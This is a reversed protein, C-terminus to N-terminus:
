AAVAVARRRRLAAGAMGFGGIMLAWSAPEPVAGGTGGIANVVIQTAWPTDAVQFATDSTILHLNIGFVEGAGVNKHGLFATGDNYNAVQTAGAFFGISGIYGVDVTGAGPLTVGALLPDGAALVTMGPNSTSFIANGGNDFVQLDAPLSYNLGSWPTLILRGGGNVYTDLATTDTFSNGYHIVADFGALSAATYSSIETVTEGAAVLSNYLNPTYFSGQVIAVNGALAPAAVTALSLAAVGCLLFRKMILVIGVPGVDKAFHGRM